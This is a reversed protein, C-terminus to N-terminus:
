SLDRTEGLAQFLAELAVSPEISTLCEKTGYPCARKGNRSCPRCPLATELARSAPLRPFYGFERVTPGFFAIAPTGVAEALHLPASDNTVLARCWKLVAATEIISLAGTLNRPVSRSLEAV